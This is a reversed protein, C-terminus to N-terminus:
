AVGSALERTLWQRAALWDRDATRKSVSLVHAVDRMALGSFIRLEVVRSMREDLTALKELARDLAIIELVPTIEGHLDTSLTVQQWGGGRKGAAKARAHDVLIRRMVRAAIAYFQARNQWSARDQNVLKLFAEHVLATAQLTHNQSESRMLRRAILRLEDHVADWLKQRAEADDVLNLDLLLQTVHDRPNQIM